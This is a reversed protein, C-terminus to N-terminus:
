YRYGPLHHKLSDTRCIYVEVLKGLKPAHAAYKGAAAATSTSYYSWGTTDTITAGNPQVFVAAVITYRRYIHSDPRSTHCKIITYERTM